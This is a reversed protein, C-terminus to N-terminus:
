DSAVLVDSSVAEVVRRFQRDRVVCGKQLGQIELALRLRWESELAHLLVLVGSFLHPASVVFYLLQHRIFQLLLVHAYERSSAATLLLTKRFWTTQM